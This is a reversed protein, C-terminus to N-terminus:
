SPFAATFARYNAARSEQIAFVVTNFHGKFDKTLLEKFIAAVMVPDNGHVGCGFASLVLDTCGHDAFMCIARFIRDTMAEKLAPGIEDYEECFDKKPDSVPTCTHQKVITHANTAPITVFSCERFDDLLQGEVSDRRIVPVLPSFIACSSSRQRYEATSNIDYFHERRGQFQAICPYLLSARCLCDEHSVTGRFFGGGPTKSSASNLVGVHGKLNAAAELSSSYIVRFQTDFKGPSTSQPKSFSHSYHYHVTNALAKALSDRVNIEQGLKNTYSGREAIAMNEM